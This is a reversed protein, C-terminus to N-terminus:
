QFENTTLNYAPARTVGFYLLRAAANKARPVGLGFEVM